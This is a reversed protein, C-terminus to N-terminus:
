NSGEPSRTRGTITSSSCRMKDNRHWACGVFVKLKQFVRPEILSDNVEFQGAELAEKEVTELRKFGRELTRKMKGECYKNVIPKEDINLRPLLKDGSKLKM